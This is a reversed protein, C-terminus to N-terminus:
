SRSRSLISCKSGCASKMPMGRGTTHYRLYPHTVSLSAVRCFRWGLTRRLTRVWCINTDGVSIWVVIAVENPSVSPFRTKTQGAEPYLAGVSNLFNRLDADGPSLSWIQCAGQTHILRNALAFTPEKARSSLKTFVDHIERVGSGDPTVHRRSWVNIAAFFEKTCLAAACSFVARDCVDVLRSVGRIHDDHWHTAVILGVAQSPDVGISELYGLARPDRSNDICSDVIIWNGDGTHLVVSEGYGPGLLTIELEDRDPLTGPTAAEKM